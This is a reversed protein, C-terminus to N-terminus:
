VSGCGGSFDLVFFPLWTQSRSFFDLRTILKASFFPTALYMFVALFLVTVWVLAGGMSPTGSKGKHLDHYIPAKKGDVSTEKIKVGIKYKYLFNSLLPTWAMALVFSLTGLIWIKLVAMAAPITTIDAFQM